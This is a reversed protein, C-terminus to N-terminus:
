SAMKKRLSYKPITGLPISSRQFDGVSLTIPGEYKNTYADKQETGFWRQEKWPHIFHSQKLKQLEEETLQHKPQRHPILMDQTSTTPDSAPYNFPIHSETLNWRKADVKHTEPPMRYDSHQTTSFCAFRDDGLRVTGEGKLTKGAPQALLEKLNPERYYFRHNTMTANEVNRKPDQDGRLISSKNKRTCLLHLPGPDKWPYSESMITSFSQRGDGPQINTQHVQAAARDPDYRPGESHQPTYARQQETLAQHYRPDGFVVSVVNENCSQAPPAWEGKYQSQYSTTYHTCGDGKLTSDGGLHRSPAKAAPRMGTHAPYSQQYLSDPLAEKEKDGSPVSDDWKDVRNPPNRLMSPPCPYSDHTVSTFTSHRSDAHMKLHSSPPSIAPKAELRRPPYSLNTESRTDWSDDMDQNLVGACKPPLIPHRRYSGWRPPYDTRYPSVVTNGEPRHDFALQFHSARLFSPSALPAQSQVLPRVQM